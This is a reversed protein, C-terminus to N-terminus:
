VVVTKGDKGLAVGLALYEIEREGINKMEHVKQIPIIVLDGKALIAEEDEIRIKARGKLIIFVEEMDEHYHSRFSRNVPLKAWNIM